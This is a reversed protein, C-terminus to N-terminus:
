FRLMGPLYQEVDLLQQFSTSAKVIGPSIFKCALLKLFRRLSSNIAGILPEEQQLFLNLNVFIQLASQLLLLYVETMPKSFATQLRKFWAASYHESLFYTKLSQYQLLTRTVVKELSLWRTSIHKTIKPYEQDCFNAYEALKCKRKTSYLFWHYIDVLLDEVEFGTVANFAKAAAASTNHVVHCQELNLSLRNCKWPKQCHTISM